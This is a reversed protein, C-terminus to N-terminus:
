LRSLKRTRYLIVPQQAAVTIHVRGDGVKFPVPQRQGISLAAAAAESENWGAPIPANLEQANLSYFCLRDGNLPAFVSQENAIEDGGLLVRYTKKDNDIEARAGGEYGIAVQQDERHFSEIERRHLHLWPVMILYFVDTIQKRDTSARLIDHINAGWFLHRARLDFAEGRMGGAMGWIASKGYVMPLLPIPTGGLPSSESIQAYWCCSIHGVMPYRLGESTVDVGHKAFEKLIRYRGEFLNGIGSAPHQPDWDNRIAYYSLVDIHTTRPLKYRECTYRVREPGPGEMYKALGQIFSVEGTWARSQWLQGDPRRAIYADNWAPSSKYADDYNDSLTVTANLSRGREMVRMMGDYGGIREDVANVAPYGTDKGNFQWGWLHVIQPAGDTLDSVDSIVRECEAFTASPQPFHPEDCRIGYIYKDHYFSNPIEPMRDRVLKAARLWGDRPNGTVPLFDLRCSPTQDILLNPTSQNGCNLPAGTGLNLDYCAGSNVRHARGSGISARLSGKSGAVEVETTDMFAATEQVCLMHETGVMTVPLSGHIRGWFRNPPLTGPTADALMVLSGGSDGYVLWARGDEERVTVLRPMAASIFEYGNQETINDLRIDLSAGHLEYVIRFSACDAAGDKVTFAFAATPAHASKPLPEPTASLDVDFFRWPSRQCVTAKIKQGLDEGRLRAGTARLRYEYPLADASDFTVEIQESRLVLRHAPAPRSTIQEQSQSQPQAPLLANLGTAAIASGGLRLFDRRRVLDQDDQM